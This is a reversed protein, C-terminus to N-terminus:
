TQSKNVREVLAEKVHQIVSIWEGATTQRFLRLTPYWLSDEREQLWRWCTDFRNLVWIPKGLAGTLHVMATDVSIVLDLNSVLAATDAFDECESMYDILGFSQPSPVGTKQLSYFQVGAVEMLPALLDPTVSRRRDTAILDPSHVRGSGAWVLGVRLKGTTDKMREGWLRARKEEAFLYPVNAPPNDPQTKFAFPLSLTPCHLDFSPLAEGRCVVADVGPLSYMLRVLPPQVELIVKLGREKALPVYRCFQLTDGFGQEAHVLLTKDEANEGHWQPQDFGRHGVSLQKTQWRREYERWGEDYRGIALLALALNHHLDPTDDLNIAKQYYPISEAIHGTDKLANAFNNIAAAYNPQVALAQLYWKKSEEFEGRLRFIIGLNNLAEAYDPKLAIALRYNQEAANLDGTKVYALAINNYAMVYNPQAEIARRYYIMAQALVGQNNLANGFNNLAEAYDPKLEVARSYATVAQVSDGLESCANGLHYYAEHNNPQLQIVNQFVKVADQYKAQEMLLLGYHLQVEVAEPRIALSKELWEQASRLEGLQCEVLALVHMYTPDGPSKKLTARLVNRAHQLEKARKGSVTENFVKHVSSQM